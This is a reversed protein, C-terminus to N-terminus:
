RTELAVFPSLTDSGKYPTLASNWVPQGDFRFIFRYAMENYLFRVHMSSDTQLGGKDIGLYQSCDALVIDGATGKAACYEVPMVPRGFITGYPAASAGGPPLYVPMGGTGVDIRMTLLQSEIEQNILWISTLRSRAWMRTWMAVLNEYTVTNAAQGIEKDVTILCGSNLFGLPLGGGPGNVIGDELKFRMEKPVIKSVISELAVADALVEDTAYYLAMLEKLELAIQSFKPQTATVTAAEAKWYARVGGWRSGNARSSEDIGNAKLGSKGPGIPVTEILKLIESDDYARQFLGAMTQQEVLFGGESPTGENLGSAAAQPDANNGWRLRPDLVHDVEFRRVAVLMEGFGAFQRSGPGGVINPNSRRASPDAPTGASAEAAPNPNVPATIPRQPEDDFALLASRREDRVNRDQIARIDAMVTEGDDFWADLEANEEESLDRKEAKATANHVEVKGKIEQYKAQLEALKTM